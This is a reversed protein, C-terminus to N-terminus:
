PTGTTETLHRVAIVITAFKVTELDISATGSYTVVLTSPGDWLLKLRLTGSNNVNDLAYPHPVTGTYNFGVVPYPKERGGRTNLYVTTEVDASGFGGNQVTNASAVWRGDPSVVATKWIMLQEKKVCGSLLGVAAILVLLEAVFAAREGAVSTRMNTMEEKSM